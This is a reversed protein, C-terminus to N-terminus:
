SSFKSSPFPRYFLVSLDWTLAWECGEGVGMGAARQPQPKEKIITLSSATFCSAITIFGRVCPVHSQTIVNEQFQLITSTTHESFYNHLWWPRSDSLCTSPKWCSAAKRKVVTLYGLSDFSPLCAGEMEPAESERKPAPRTSFRGNFPSCCVTRIYRSGWAQRHTHTHSWISRKWEYGGVHMGM